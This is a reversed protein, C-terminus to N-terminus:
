ISSTFGLMEKKENYIYVNVQGNIRHVSIYNKDQPLQIYVVEDEVGIINSYYIYGNEYEIMLLQNIWLDVKEKNRM